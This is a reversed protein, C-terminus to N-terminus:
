IPRGAITFSAWYYPIAKAGYTKLMDRKAATLAYAVDPRDHPHFVGGCSECADVALTWRGPFPAVADLEGSGADRLLSSAECIANDSSEDSVMPALLCLRTAGGATAGFRITLEDGAGLAIRWYDPGGSRSATHQRRLSLEPATAISAGGSGPTSTNRPISQWDPM